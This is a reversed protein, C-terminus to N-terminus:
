RPGITTSRSRTVTNLGFSPALDHIIDRSLDQALDSTLKPHAIWLIASASAAALVSPLDADLRNRNLCFMPVVDADPIGARVDLAGVVPELKPPAGAVALRRKGKVQLREAVPKNSM